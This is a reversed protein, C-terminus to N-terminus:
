SSYQNIFHCIKYTWYSYIIIIICISIYIYITIILIDIIIILKGTITGNPDPEKGGRNHMYLASLDAALPHRKRAVMRVRFNKPISISAAGFVAEFQSQHQQKVSKYEISSYGGAQGGRIETCATQAELIKVPSLLKETASARAADTPNQDNYRLGQLRSVQHMSESVSDDLEDKSVNPKHFSHQSSEPIPNATSTSALVLLGFNGCM